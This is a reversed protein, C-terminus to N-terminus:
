SWNEVSFGCIIRDRVPEVAVKFKM